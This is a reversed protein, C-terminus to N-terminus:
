LSEIKWINNTNIIFIISRGYVGPQIVTYEKIYPDYVKTPESIVQGYEITARNEWNNDKNKIQEWQAWEPLKEGYEKLKGDEKLKSFEEQYKARRDSDLVFYKVALDVNEDKLAQVFLNFTEEPTKGGYTDEQFMKVLSKNFNEANRAIRWKELQYKTQYGAEGGLYFIVVGLAFIGTYILTKLYINKTM